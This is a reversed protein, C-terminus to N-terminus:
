KMLRDNFKYGVGRVTLIYEPASAKQEIKNRLRNINSNVTHEYCSNSYGWVSDLLQERSYVQGPNSTLFLLLDFEKATLEIPKNRITVQRKTPIISLERFEVVNDASNDFNSILQQRRLIAKIRAKLERVGFPKVLYDDAGMELGLVRDLESDRATVMLIPTYEDHQRYKRCLEVGDMGPLGLDLLLLDYHNFKAMSYGSQGDTVVDVNHGDDILHLQIIETLDADDEIVLISAM